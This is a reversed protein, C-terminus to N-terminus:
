IIYKVSSSRWRWCWYIDGLALIGPSKDLKLYKRLGVGEMMQRLEDDVQLRSGDKWGAHAIDLTCHYGDIHHRAHWEDSLCKHWSQGLRSSGGAHSMASPVAMGVEWHKRVKTTGQTVWSAVKSTHWSNWGNLCEIRVLVLQLVRDTDVCRCRTM